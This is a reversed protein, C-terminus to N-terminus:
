GNIIVAPGSFYYRPLSKQDYAKFVIVIITQNTPLQHNPPNESSLEDINTATVWHTQQLWSAVAVSSPRSPYAFTLNTTCDNDTNSIIVERVWYRADTYDVQSSPGLYTIKALFAKDGVLPKKPLNRTDTSRMQRDVFPMMESLQRAAKEGLYYKKAM